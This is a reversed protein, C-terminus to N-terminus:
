IVNKKKGAREDRAKENRKVFGSSLLLLPRGQDGQGGVATSLVDIDVQGQWIQWHKQHKIGGEDDTSKM